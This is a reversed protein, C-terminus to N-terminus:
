SASSFLPVILGGLGLLVWVVVQVAWYVSSMRMLFGAVVGLVVFALWGSWWGAGIAFALTALAIGQALFICMWVTASLFGHFTDKQEQIDMGGQAGSQAM